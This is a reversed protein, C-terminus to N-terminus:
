SIFAPRVVFRTSCNLLMVAWEDYHKGEVELIGNKYVSLFIHYM